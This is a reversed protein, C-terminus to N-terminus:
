IVIDIEDDDGNSYVFKGEEVKSEINPAPLMFCFATGAFGLFYLLRSFLTSKLGLDINMRYGIMLVCEMIFCLAYLAIAVSMLVVTLKQMQSQTLDVTLILYGAVLLLTGLQSFIYVASYLVSAPNAFDLYEFVASANFLRIGFLLLLGAVMLVSHAIWVSYKETFDLFSAVTLMLYFVIGILRGSRNTEINIALFIQYATFLTFSLATVLRFALQVKRNTLISEKM